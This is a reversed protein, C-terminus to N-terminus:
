RRLALARVHGARQALAVAERDGGVAGTREGRPGVHVEQAELADSAETSDRAQCKAHLRHAPRVADTAPHQSVTVVAVRSRASLGRWRMARASRTFSSWCCTASMESM